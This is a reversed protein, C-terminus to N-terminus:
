LICRDGTGPLAKCKSPAACKLLVNVCCQNEGLHGAAGGTELGPFPVVSGRGVLWAGPRRGARGTLGEKVAM